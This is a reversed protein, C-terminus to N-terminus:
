LARSEALGSHQLTTLIDRLHRHQVEDDALAGLETLLESTSFSQAPDDSLVGFVAAVDQELLHTAASPEHYVVTEEGWCRVQALASPSVAWRPAM